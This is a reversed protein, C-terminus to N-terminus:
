RKKKGKAKPVECKLGNLRAFKGFMEKAKTDYQCAAEEASGFTGLYFTKREKHIYARFRDKHKVVGKLGSKNTSLKAVNAGNQSVTARRLNTRRNDLKDGNVHDIVEGKPADALIRHLYLRQAGGGSGRTFAAYGKHVHWRYEEAWEATEDDVKVCGKANTLKLCKM